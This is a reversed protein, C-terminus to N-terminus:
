DEYVKFEIEDIKVGSGLASSGQIIYRIRYQRYSKDLPTATQAANTIVYSPVFISDAPYTSFGTTDSALTHAAVTSTYSAVPVTWDSTSIAVTNDANVDDSVASAIIQVWTADDSFERGFVSIAVTTDALAVLDFKSKVAVKKVYGANRYEIVFDITDQNTSVLTDAATGSYRYYTTNRSMQKTVTREQAFNALGLFAFIMIIILKKM